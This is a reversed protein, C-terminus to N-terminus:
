LCPHGVVLLFMAAVLLLGPRKGKGRLDDFAVPAAAGSSSEVPAM